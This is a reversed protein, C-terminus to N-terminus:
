KDEYDSFRTNRYILNLYHAWEKLHYFELFGNKFARKRWGKGKKGRPMSLLVCKLGGSHSSNDDVTVTVLMTKSHLESCSILISYYHKGRM